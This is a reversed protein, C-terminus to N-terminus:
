PRNNPKLSDSNTFLSLEKIWDYRLFEKQEETFLEEVCPTIISIM